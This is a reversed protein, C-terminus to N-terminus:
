EIPKHAFLVPKHTHALVDQAVSGLLVRALGTRGHTGLCVLDADLREAAQGIAEAIHNSELVHLRTAKDENVTGAPILDALRQRVTDFAPDDYTRDDVFVDHPDTPFHGRYKAVHVLHVTGGAETARYAFAIAANGVDSFDTAVMVTRFRRPAPQANELPAPVCVVNTSAHQLAARSASGSWWRQRRTYHHSGVVLLDAHEAAALAALRDGVRGLHPQMVVRVCDDHLTALHRSLDRHLAATVQPDPALYDRAGSLGLRALESPPWYLHAAIVECPGYNRLQELWTM